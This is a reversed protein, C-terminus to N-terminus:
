PTSRPDTTIAPAPGSGPVAMGDWSRFMGACAALTTLALLATAINAVTRRTM